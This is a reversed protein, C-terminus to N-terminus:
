KSSIYSFMMNQQSRDMINFTQLREHLNVRLVDLVHSHMHQKRLYHLVHLLRFVSSDDIYQQFSHLASLRVKLFQSLTLQKVLYIYLAIHTEDQEESLFSLLQRLRTMFIAREEDTILTTYYSPLMYFYNQLLEPDSIELVSHLFGM